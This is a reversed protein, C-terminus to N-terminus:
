KFHFFFGFTALPDSKKDLIISLKQNNEFGPSDAIITEIEVNPLNIAAM